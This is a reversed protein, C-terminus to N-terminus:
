AAVGLARRANAIADPVGAGSSSATPSPVVLVLPRTGRRAVDLAAAPVLAAVDADVLVLASEACAAQFADAANRADVIWVHAGALRWGAAAVRGTLVYPVDDV